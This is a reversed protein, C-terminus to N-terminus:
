FRQTKRADEAIEANLFRAKTGPVKQAKTGPEKRAKTGPEM